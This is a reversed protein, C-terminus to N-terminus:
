AWSKPASTREAIRGGSAGVRSPGAACTCDRAGRRTCGCRSPPVRCLSTLYRAPDLKFSAYDRDQYWNTRTTAQVLHLLSSLIRDEDLSAVDFLAESIDDALRPQAEQADDSRDPDFRSEFLEVLMAAIRPNRSLTDEIYSQGFTSGIQRM